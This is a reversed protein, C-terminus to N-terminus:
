PLPHASTPIFGFYIGALIVLVAPVIFWVAAAFGDSQLIKKM